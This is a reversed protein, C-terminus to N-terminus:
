DVYVGVAMHWDLDGTATPLNAPPFDAYTQGEAYKSDGSTFGTAYRFNGVNVSSATWAIYYDTATVADSDDLTVEYYQSGTTTTVIGSDMLVGGSTYLGMKVDGGGFATGIYVRLKTATGGSAVTVKSWLVSTASSGIDSTTSAQAISDYWTDPGGGAVPQFNKRRNPVSQGCFFVMALLLLICRTLKM